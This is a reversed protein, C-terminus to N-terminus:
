VVRAENQLLADVRRVPIGRFTSTSVGDV